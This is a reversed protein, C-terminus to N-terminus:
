VMGFLSLNITTLVYNKLTLFDTVYETEISSWFHVSFYVKMHKSHRFLRFDAIVTM